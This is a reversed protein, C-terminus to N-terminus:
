RGEGLFIIIADYSGDTSMYLRKARGVCQRRLWRLGVRLRPVRTAARLVAAHKSGAPAAFERSARNM